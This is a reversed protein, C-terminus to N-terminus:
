KDSPVAKLWGPTQVHQRATADDATEKKEEAKKDEVKKEAEPEAGNAPVTALPV